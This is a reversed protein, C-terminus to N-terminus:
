PIGAGNAWTGNMDPRGDATRPTTATSVTSAMTQTQAMAVPVSLTFMVAAAVIGNLTLYDKM